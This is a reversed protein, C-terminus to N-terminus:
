FCKSPIISDHLCVENDAANDVKSIGASCTGAATATAGSLGGGASTILLSEDIDHRGMRGEEFAIIM